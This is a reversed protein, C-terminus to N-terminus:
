YFFVRKLARNGRRRKGRQGRFVICGGCARGDCGRRRRLSGRLLREVEEEELLLMLLTAASKRVTAATAAAERTGEFAPTSAWTLSSGNTKFFLPHRLSLRPFASANSEKEREGGESCCVFPSLFFFFREEDKKGAPM